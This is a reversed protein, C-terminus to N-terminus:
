SERIRYTLSVTVVMVNNSTKIHTDVTKKKDENDEENYAFRVKVPREMTLIDLDVIHASIHVWLISVNASQPAITNEQYAEDVDVCFKLFFVLALFEGPHSVEDLEIFTARHIQTSKKRSRKRGTRKM